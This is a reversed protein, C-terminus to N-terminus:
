TYIIGTSESSSYMQSKPGETSMCSGPQDGDFHQEWVDESHKNNRAKEDCPCYLQYIIGWEIGIPYILWYHNIYKRSKEINRVNTYPNTGALGVQPTERKGYARKKRILLMGKEFFDTQTMEKVYKLNKVLKRFCWLSASCLEMCVLPRIEDQARM